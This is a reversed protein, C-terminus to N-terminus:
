RDPQLRAIIRTPPSAGCSNGAVAVGNAVWLKYGQKRVRVDYTGPTANLSSTVSRVTLTDSLNVYSYNLYTSDYFAGMTVILSSHHAQPVASISDSIDAIIAPKPIASCDLSGCSQALLVAPLGLLFCLSKLTMEHHKATRSYRALM